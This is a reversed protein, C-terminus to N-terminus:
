CSLSYRTKASSNQGLAELKKQYGDSVRSRSQKSEFAATGNEASSRIMSIRLQAIRSRTSLRLPTRLPKAPRYGGTPRSRSHFRSRCILQGHRTRLESPKSM